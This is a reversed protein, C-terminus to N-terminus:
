ISSDPGFFGNRSLSEVYTAVDDEEVVDTDIASERQNVIPEQNAALGAVTDRGISRSRHIASDIM